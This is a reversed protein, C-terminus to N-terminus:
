INDVDVKYKTYRSFSIGRRNQVQGEATYGSVGERFRYKRGSLGM